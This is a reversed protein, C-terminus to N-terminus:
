LRRHSDFGRIVWGYGDDAIATAAVAGAAASCIRQLAPAGITGGQRGKVGIQLAQERCPIAQRRM